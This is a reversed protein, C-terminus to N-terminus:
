ILCAPDPYLMKLDELAERFATEISKGVMMSSSLCSLAQKFQVYLKNKRSQILQQKRIRPFTFGLAALAIALVFSKYFIYGVVFAPLALMLIAIVKEKSTLQYHNYDILQNMTATQQIPQIETRKSSRKRRELYLLFFWSFAGIIVLLLVLKM